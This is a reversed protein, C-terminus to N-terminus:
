TDPQSGQGEALIVEALMVLVDPEIMSSLGFDARWSLHYPRLVKAGEGFDHAYTERVCSVLSNVSFQTTSRSRGGREPRTHAPFAQDLWQAFGM